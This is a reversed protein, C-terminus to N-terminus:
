ARGLGEVLLIVINPAKDSKNFFPTLVDETEDTHLFPFKEPDTYAFNVMQKGVDGFDGSYSDSYIDDEIVAPFFHKYSQTFFFDSKNLALSRDFETKLSLFTSSSSFSSLFFIISLLPFVAAVKFQMNNRKRFKYFVFIYVLLFLVFTLIISISIGGSAGVTQKMDASSYSFFDAGLPVMAKSFYQVFAIHIILLLGSVIYFFWQALHRSIFYFLLFLIYLLINSKLWFVIANIISAGLIVATDKSFEHAIGNLVVEYISLLIIFILWVLSLVAFSQTAKKIKGFITPKM